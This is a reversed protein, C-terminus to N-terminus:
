PEPATSSEAVGSANEDVTATLTATLDSIIKEQDSQLVVVANQGAWPGVQAVVFASQRYSAIAGILSLLIGLPVLWLGPLRQVQVQLGPLSSAFLELDDPGFPITLQGGPTLEARYVPQDADSRYLELVFADSGPRQVIRLGAAQQPLLISEESGPNAFVMGIQPRLKVEGPLALQDSGDSTKIWIAPFDPRVRLNALGLAQQTAENLSVEVQAGQLTAVLSAEASNTSPMRYQLLLNRNASRFTAGPALPPSTIQWGFVLAIWAGAVAVLLGGMLLPRLYNLRLNRITALRVEQAPTAEAEGEIEDEGTTLSVEARQLDGFTSRMANELTASAVAADTKVLGRWRYLPRAASIALPVGPETAPASLNAASVSQYQHLTGLQDALQAALTPVLLAILLYLLPSRSVNFLGLALFANGWIGFNTSTNLLWTAVAAQEEALQGPVQPLLWASLALIAGILGSFIALWPRRLWQWLWNLAVSIGRRAVRRTTSLPSASVSLLSPAFVSPQWRDISGAM